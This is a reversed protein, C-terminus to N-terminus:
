GPIFGGSGLWPHGAAVHAGWGEARRQGACQRRQKAKGRNAVQSLFGLPCCLFHIYELSLYCKNETNLTQYLVLIAKVINQNTM